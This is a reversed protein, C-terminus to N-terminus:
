AITTWLLTYCKPLNAHEVTTGLTLTVPLGLEHRAAHVVPFHETFATPFHFAPGRGTRNLHRYIDASLMYVTGVSECAVAGASSAARWLASDGLYPPFPM